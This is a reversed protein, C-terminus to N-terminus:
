AKINVRPFGFVGIAGLGTVHHIVRIGVQIHGTSGGGIQKGQRVILTKSYEINIAYFEAQKESGPFDAPHSEQCDRGGASAPIYHRENVIVTRANLM